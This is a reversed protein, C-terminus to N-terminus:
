DSNEDGNPLNQEDSKGEGSLNPEANEDAGGAQENTLNSTKNAAGASLDSGNFKGDKGFNVENGGPNECVM